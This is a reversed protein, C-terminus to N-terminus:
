TYRYLPMLEQYITLCKKAAENWTQRRSEERGNEALAAHLSPHELVSVIKNTMEDVDWFDARLAHRLVESVGSQKSILVPTGCALSELPTIGFPESVSPMVYVDAIKYVNTLEEGRLFGTFIIKDSLGLAAVEEMMRRQMDGSGVVLFIVHPNYTSVKQALKVFYDPGKQLTIRGAFLVIKHGNQKLASLSNSTTQYEEYNVGNHVVSIKEASIGYQESVIKKTYGSVAIVKQAKEFGEKELDYVAKNISHGGTRDFETAHIHAVFPRKSVEHAAVGAGFSLWDHAHILDFSEEQAIQAAIKRYRDVESLLDNGYPYKKDRMYSGNTPYPMLHSPIVKYTVTGKQEAFLFKAHTSSIPTSKPLVFTIDVGIKALAESLGMCAIGLGGSNHPPYEWGFMLLKM